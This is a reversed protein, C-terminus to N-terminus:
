RPVLYTGALRDHPSREPFRIALAVYLPLLAVALVWCVWSLWYTWGFDSEPLGRVWPLFDLLTSLLLLGVVPAWVVLARWACQIRLAPRGNARVLSLGMLRLSLAGRLIFAWAIWVLPFFLVMGVVVSMIGRGIESSPPSRRYDSEDARIRLYHRNDRRALSPDDSTANDTYGQAYTLGSRALPRASKYVTEQKRTKDDIRQRLRERLQLDSACVALAALRSAEDPLATLAVLDSLLRADLAKLDAQDKKVVLDRVQMDGIQGIILGFLPIGFMFILPFSLVSALLVVHAGRWSATVRVPKERCALLDARVEAIQASGEGTQLVRNIIRAGHEPVVARLPKGSEKVLRPAGELALTAAESFLKVARKEPPLVENADGARAEILEVLQVQGDHQVWIQDLTLKAPFTEDRRAEELENALHELMPRVQPWALKGEIRVLEPLPYGLPALFADWQWDETKGSTLWRLRTTRNIQQRASPIAPQTLPRLWIWVTRELSRDQARLVRAHPDCSIAGEIHFPGIREPLGAPKTVALQFPRARANHPSRRRDRWPLRVVHTNTLLEHPGRYGNRARMTTLLLLHGLVFLPESMKAGEQANGPLYDGNIICVVLSALRTVALFASTRWLATMLGPPMNNDLPYVRLGLLWKGLSCGWIGETLTFYVLLAVTQGLYFALLFMRQGAGVAYTQGEVSVKMESIGHLGGILLIFPIWDILYAAIRLGVGAMSLAGPVFPSLASRFSELDQWRRERQRELGRLVVRDLALPIEPRFTRRLTRMSPAADAVIRAMTAAPDGSDFPAKGTLLFYLTAAVSYVDSQPTLPDKRIQEPSAFLPTGLFAGTRTLHSDDVLSKALGFDGVKVRGDAELFCNSPKVDRHIVGLRHAEELGEVVDLIKRVAQEPPLPGREDVLDKLTSGQMLEMVIYPRGAEEDAALVFVCRPHAIASALRGEKRFRELADASAAFERAVLKVAVRRGTGKDEAEFVRGMGGAGLPRILRYSGVTEVPEDASPASAPTPPLTLAEPDFEATASLAGKPLPKGCYGCFAPSDGSFQLTRHCLPCAVQMM